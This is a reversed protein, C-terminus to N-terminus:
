SSFKTQFEDIQVRTDYTINTNAAEMKFEKLTKFTPLRKKLFPEVSSDSIQTSRLDFVLRKASKLANFLKEMGFDTIKTSHLNIELNDLDDISPLVKKSLVELGKDGIKNLNLQLSLSKVPALSKFLQTLGRDNTKTKKLDLTFEELRRAKDLLNEALSELSSNTIEDSHWYIQLSKLYISESFVNEMLLKITQDSVLCSRFDLELKQLRTPKDLVRALTAIVDESICTADPRMILHVMSTLKQWVCQLVKIDEKTLACPKTNLTVVQAKSWQDLNLVTEKPATKQISIQLHNDKFDFGISSQASINIVSEEISTEKPLNKLFDEFSFDFKLCSKTQSTFASQFSNSIETLGEYIQQTNKKMIEPQTESEFKRISDQLHTFFDNECLLDDRQFISKLQNLKETIQERVQSKKGYFQNAKETKVQFFSKVEIYLQEEKNKLSNKLEDFTDKITSLVETQKKQLNENIEKYGMDLDELVNELQKKKKEAEVKLKKLATVEHGRHAESCVCLDCLKRKDTHCIFRFEEDHEECLGRESSGELVNILSYNVPFGALTIQKTTTAFKVKDM